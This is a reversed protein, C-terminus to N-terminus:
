DFFSPEGNLWRKFNDLDWPYIADTIIQGLYTPLPRTQGHMFRELEQRNCPCRVDSIRAFYFGEDSKYVPMVPLKGKEFIKIKKAM